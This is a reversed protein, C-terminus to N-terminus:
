FSFLMLAKVVVIHPRLSCLPEVSRHRSNSSASLSGGKVMVWVYVCMSHFSFGVREIVCMYLCVDPSLSLFLSHTHTHIHQRKKIIFACRLVMINQCAMFTV